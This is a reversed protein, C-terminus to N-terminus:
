IFTFSNMIDFFYHNVFPYECIVFRVHKAELQTMRHSYSNNGIKNKIFFNIRLEYKKVICCNDM